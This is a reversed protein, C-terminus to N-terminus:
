LEAERTIALKAEAIETAKREDQERLKARIERFKTQSLETGCLPCQELNTQM